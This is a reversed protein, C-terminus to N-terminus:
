TSTNGRSYGVQREAAGNPPQQIIGNGPPFPTPLLVTFAAGKGPEGVADIAGGHRLAIRACIALGIGTGDYDARSHLRQFPKLIHEAYRQEFGIGNDAVTIECFGDGRDRGRVVVVPAADKKRFKLANGILNVLLQRLQTPDGRLRPMPGIEVTGGSRAALTELDGLAERALRGGDVSEFARHSTTVRSLALLDKILRRMWDVSGVMRALIDACEPDLAPGARMHLFEAFAAVKNLPEQLDHSAIFAFQALEANSRALEENIL